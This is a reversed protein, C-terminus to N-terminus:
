KALNVCIIEEDNRIFACRGAYAPHSWVVARRTGFGADGTPKLLHARSIEQYGQPTLRAIILDGKENFLFFRDQHPTLFANAWRARQGGTAQFTEWIREGTNKNLCRLQGYSCVGYLYDGQIVPTPMISHLGDTDIENKGQGKWVVSPQDRDPAFELMLPGDYFATVFLRNGDQIPTPISLGSRLPFPHSWLLKGTEPELGNVAEPHWIILHRRGHFTYIMPPCYGPESASLARWIEKGTNKDLAVAISGRGGALCILRDGDILPHAAYGWRPFSQGRVNYDRPLNRHWLVTGKAADLCHLDGMAGLAYVKGEHVTPTCRPGAPYSLGAYNCRYEHTWQVQGTKQDLCLVRETGADHKRDLVIVRGEAVAPGAYGGGLLTRWLIPPGGAPFQDVIGTERWVGDRRPGLWQPWDDAQIRSVPAVAVFMVLWVRLQRIRRVSPIM